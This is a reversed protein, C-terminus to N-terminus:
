SQCSLPPGRLRHAPKPPGHAPAIDEAPISSWQREVTVATVLSVVALPVPSARFLHENLISSDLWVVHDDDHEIETPNAHHAEAAHPGFHSHAVVHDLDHGLGPEHIHQPALSSAFALFPAVVLLAAGRAM